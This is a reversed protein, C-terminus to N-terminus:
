GREIVEKALAIYQKAGNSNKAYEIIPEGFSPAESLRVTRSIVTEFVKGKFHERVQEGVQNSINTRSDTMTLLVGFIDLHSNLHKRVINFTNMLQSLGELAYYETQVPIIVGDAATLSNLTILGLSPPCDIIIYDYQDKIDAIANKMRQERSIASVLEVEAGALAISSPVIDLNEYDTKLIVENIDVEDVLINYISSKVDNKDIGIGSTANAQPDTDILLVKKKLYALSAATNISSTTKGVGGKQNCIAIIKM